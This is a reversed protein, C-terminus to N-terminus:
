GNIITEWKEVIKEVSQEDRIKAGNRSLKEALAPNEAIECMARCLAEADGVPTLLGNEHDRIVARAGGAPCDTCVTPLGIAMAELMSNSMGEFDSSSVFMAYDLIDNHITNTAPLIRIRDACKKSEALTRLEEMYGEVGNGVPDGIIELRYDNHKEWFMSFAEILLALNKQTSIRCFDVIMNKREGKYSAPLGPTLPNFIIEGALGFREKYWKCVDPSQFVIADAKKFMLKFFANDTRSSASQAPDGRDSIIVRNGRGAALLTLFISDYLFAVLAANKHKSVYEKLWHYKSYNRVKYMKVLQRAKGDPLFVRAFKASLKIPLVRLAEFRVGDGTEDDLSIVNVHGHLRSLDADAKRQHTLIVTCDYGRSAFETALLSIMRGAGGSTLQKILFCLDKESSM